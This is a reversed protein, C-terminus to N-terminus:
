IFHRKFTQIAREAANVRHNSPEMFQWKGDEKALYEKIPKTAQNDTVNFKPKHGKNKLDSFVEDFAELITDDKLDKVPVAYIYNNDYDYAIFFYQHGDLSIAPLTGTQDTFMTGSEKDTLAAYCVINNQRM